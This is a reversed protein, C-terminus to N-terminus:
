DGHRLDPPDAFLRSLACTQFQLVLFYALSQNEFIALSLRKLDFDATEDRVRGTQRVAPLRM